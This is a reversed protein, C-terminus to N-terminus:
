GGLYTLAKPIPLTYFAARDLGINEIAKAVADRVTDVNAPGLSTYVM